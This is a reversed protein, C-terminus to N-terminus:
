AANNAGPFVYIDRGEFFQKATDVDQVYDVLAVSKSEKSKSDYEERPEAVIVYGKTQQALVWELLRLATIIVAVLNPKGTIKQLFHLSKAAGGSIAFRFTEKSSASFAGMLNGGLKLFLLNHAVPTRHHILLLSLLTKTFIMMRSRHLPELRKHNTTVTPTYLGLLLQQPTSEYEVKELPAMKVWRM